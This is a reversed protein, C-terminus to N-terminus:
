EESGDNEQFAAIKISDGSENEYALIAKNSMGPYRNAKVAKLAKQAERLTEYVGFFESGSTSENWVIFGQKM